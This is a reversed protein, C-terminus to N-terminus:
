LLEQDARTKNKWQRYCEVDQRRLREITPDEARILTFSVAPRAASSICHIYKQITRNASAGTAWYYVLNNGSHFGLLQNQELHKMFLCNEVRLSIKSTKQCTKKM